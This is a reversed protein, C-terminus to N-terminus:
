GRKQLYILKGCATKESKDKPSFVKMVEGDRLLNDPVSVVNHAAFAGESVILKLRDLTKQNMVYKINYDSEDLKDAWDNAPLEPFLKKIDRNIKIEKIKDKIKKFIKIM